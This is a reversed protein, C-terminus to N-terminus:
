LQQLKEFMIKQNPEDQAQRSWIIEGSIHLPKAENPLFIEIDIKEGSELKRDSNFCMGEVSINKIIASVKEALGGPQNKNQTQFNVKLSDDLRVYKRREDLHESM